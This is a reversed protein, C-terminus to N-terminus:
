SPEFVSVLFPWPLSRVSHQIHHHLPTVVMLKDIHRMDYEVRKPSVTREGRWKHELFLNRVGRRSVTREGRWKHELFLNRVGRRSV